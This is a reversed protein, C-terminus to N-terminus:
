IVQRFLSRLCFLREVLCPKPRQHQSLRDPLRVPWDGRSLELAVPSPDRFLLPPCGLRGGPRGPTHPRRRRDSRTHGAGGRAGPWGRARLWRRSVRTATLPGADYAGSCLAPGGPEAAGSPQLSSLCTRVSGTYHWRSPCPGQAGTCPVGLALGTHGLCPGPPM